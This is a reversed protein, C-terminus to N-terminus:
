VTWRPARADAYPTPDDVSLKQPSTASSRTPSSFRRFRKAMATERTPYASVQGSSKLLNMHRRLADHVLEDSRNREDAAGWSRGNPWRIWTGESLSPIDRTVVRSDRPGTSAGRGGTSPLRRIEGLASPEVHKSMLFHQGSVELDDDPDSCSGPPVQHGVAPLRVVAVCADNRTTVGSLSSPGM